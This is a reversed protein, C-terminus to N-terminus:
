WEALKILANVISVAVPSGGKRGRCAIHPWDLGALEDKSEAASVFGVPVGIVLAPRARGERILSIMEFLATPANGIAIIAGECQAAAKRMSVIARTVGERKAEEIVEPDSIFCHTDGGYKGLGAKNVGAKVMEVDCVVGKGSRIAELGREIAAPHFVINKAFEFDASAHIVRRVIPFELDSFRHPGLEEAIIRFSEKEIALPDKLM